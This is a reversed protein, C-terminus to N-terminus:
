TMKKRTFFTKKGPLNSHEPSITTIAFLQLAHFYSGGNKAFPGFFLFTYTQLFSQLCSYDPNTSPAFIGAIGLFAMGLTAPKMLLYFFFRLAAM